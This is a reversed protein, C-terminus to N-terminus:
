KNTLISVVKYIKIGEKWRRRKRSKNNLSMRRKGETNSLTENMYKQTHTESWM